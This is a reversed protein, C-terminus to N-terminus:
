STGIVAVPCPSKRVLRETVGGLRPHVAADTGQRGVFVVDFGHELSYRCLAEAPDSGEIVVHSFPRGIGAGQSSAHSRLEDMARQRMAEMQRIRGEETESHAPACIVTVAVVDGHLDEALDEALSLARAADQSADWGVLVRRFASM